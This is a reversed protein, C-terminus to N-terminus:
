LEYDIFKPHGKDKPLLIFISQLWREFDSAKLIAISTRKRHLKLMREGSDKKDDNYQVENSTLLSHHYSLHRCLLSM